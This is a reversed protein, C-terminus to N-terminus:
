FPLVSLLLNWLFNGVFWVPCIFVGLLGAFPCDSDNGPDAIAIIKQKTIEVFAESFAEAVFGTARLKNLDWVAGATAFSLPPYDEETTGFGNGIPDVTVQIETYNSATSLDEEPLYVQWNTESNQFAGIGETPIIPNNLISHLSWDNDQLLELTSNYDISSDTNDRDEDTVLIM